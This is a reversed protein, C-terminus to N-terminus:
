FLTKQPPNMAPCDHAHREDLTHDGRLILRAGCLNCPKCTCKGKKLLSCEPSHRRRFVEEQVEPSFTKFADWKVTAFLNRQGTRLERMYVDCIGSHGRDWEVTIRSEDPEKKNLVFEKVIGSIGPYMKYWVRDGPKLIERKVATKAESAIKGEAKLKKILDLFVKDNHKKALAEIVGLLQHNIQVLERSTMEAKEAKEEAPVSPKPEFTRDTLGIMSLDNMEFGIWDNDPSRDAWQNAITNDDIVAVPRWERTGGDSM